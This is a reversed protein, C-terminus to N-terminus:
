FSFDDPGTNQNNKFENMVSGAFSRMRDFRSTRHNTGTDQERAAESRKKQEESRQRMAEKSVNHRNMFESYRVDKRAKVDAMGGMRELFPEKASRESPMRELMKSMNYLDGDNFIQFDKQMREMSTVLPIVQVASVDNLGKMAKEYQEPQDKYTRGIAVKAENYYAVCAGLQEQYYESLQHKQAPTIFSGNDYARHLISERLQYQGGYLEMFPLKQTYSMDAFRTFFGRKVDKDAVTVSKMSKDTVNGGTAKNVRDWAALKAKNSLERQKAKKESHSALGYLLVSSVGGRRMATAALGGSFSKQFQGNKRMMHTMIPAMLFGYGAQRMAHCQMIASVGSGVHQMFSKRNLQKEFKAREKMMRAENKQRSAEDLKTCNFTLGSYEQMSQPIKPTKTLSRCSGFMYEASRIGNQLEPTNSLKACNAFMFNADQLSKPLVVPGVELNPCNFFMFNAEKLNRNLPVKVETLSRCGAFMSDANLLSNPLKPMSTISSNMFMMSADEIGDPIKIKAGDTEDGIYKLVEYEGAPLDPTARAKVTVLEFEMPDYDFHGLVGDYHFTGDDNEFEVHPRFDDNETMGIVELNMRYCLVFYPLLFYVHCGICVAYFM